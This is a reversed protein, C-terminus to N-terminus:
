IMFTAYSAHNGCEAIQPQRGLPLLFRADLLRAVHRRAERRRMGREVLHQLLEAVAAGGRARELIEKDLQSSSLVVLSNVDFLYWRDRLGFHHYETPGVVIDSCQADTVM